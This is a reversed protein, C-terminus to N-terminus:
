YELQNSTMRQKELKKYPTKHNIYFGFDELGLYYSAYNGM